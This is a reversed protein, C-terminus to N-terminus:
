PSHSQHNGKYNACKATVYLCIKGKGKNCGTVGCRHNEVTYPGSCIVCQM